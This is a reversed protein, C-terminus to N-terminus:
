NYSRVEKFASLLDTKGDFVKANSLNALEDLQYESAKGFTISYIPVNSGLRIYTNYVDNFTGVNGEGDTMLIITKTYKDGDVDKMIELARNVAGYLNTGGNPSLNNLNNVLSETNRGNTTTYPSSVYSAFPIIVVTDHKSFQIMDKSADEYNLIYNMAEKLEIDGDGAMSGSFDLCFITYSPKRFEEIYLNFALTMVSKSPYKLPILYKNTDIGWEPNFINTDVNKNTGGYWTRRGLKQLEKQGEESLLYQQIVQFKEKKNQDNNVYAFPSDNIAVGDVPYILYLPEKGAKVLSQNIRILSTESTIVAEYDNSNLFMEELYSEDGSVRSVGSFFQIMSKALSSNDLMDETLVEPNGALSNLFGLYATAGSNTKTVSSMIYNLKKDQIAKLLDSNYVVKDIFGLEIAKSKKIGMVVPNISISKSESVLYSNDLMYLWISNSIWVADYNSSDNNLIDIMELDDAYEFKIKIDHKKGYAIINNEFDKNEYSSLITFANRDKYNQYTNISAVILIPVVNILLIILFFVGVITFQNQTRKPNITKM